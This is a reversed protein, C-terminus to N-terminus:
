SHLVYSSDSSSDSSSVTSLVVVPEIGNYGSRSSGSSSVVM